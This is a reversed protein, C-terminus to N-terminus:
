FWDLLPGVAATSFVATGHIRPDRDGIGSPLGPHSTVVTSCDSKIVLTNVNTYKDVRSRDEGVLPQFTTLFSPILPFNTVNMDVEPVAYIYVINQGSRYGTASQFTLQNLVRVLGFIRDDNFKNTARYKSKNQHVNLNIHRHMIHGRATTKGDSDPPRPTDYSLSGKNLFCPDSSIWSLIGDALKGTSGGDTPGEGADNTGPLSGNSPQLQSRRTESEYRTNSFLSGGYYHDRGYDTMYGSFGNVFAHFWEWAGLAGPGNKANANWKPGCDNDPCQVSTEGRIFSCDVEIGDLVCNSRGGDAGLIGQVNKGGLGEQVLGDPDIGGDPPFPDSDGVNAGGPDLTTWDWPSANSITGQLDGTVPDFNEWVGGIPVSYGVEGIREEAAFVHTKLWTATADYESVAKGGLVTSRLLFTRGGFTSSFNTNVYLHRLVSYDVVHGDGDHKWTNVFDNTLTYGTGEDIIFSSRKQTSGIERGAADFNYRGVEFPPYGAQENRSLVNGEADYSWTTVRNNTDYELYTEGGRSWYSSNASTQNGWQDYTYNHRYPGDPTGGSTDNVFERAEVGSYASQLRNAVDYQYARDKIPNGNQALKIMGDPHYQYSANVYWYEDPTNLFGILSYSKVLGRNNYDFNVTTNGQSRSKLQGGARYQMQSAFQTQTQQYGVADVATVRGRRDLTETFSSNAREDTVKKLVGGLNYEYSLRFTGANPLGSFTREEWDMRSLQDYHYNVAGSGDSMSTRNAAADYALAVSTTPAVNAGSPVSSADYAVATVLHRANYTYNTVVGRADVRSQITDDSNYNWTTHDSSASNNPDVKQNPTHRTKLRGFGDYTITTDRSTAGPTTGAFERVLTVQNRANYTTTTTAYVTGGTGNPGPGDWNLLESKIIRGLVDSYVRQQRKKTDAGVKTGEDTLTVVEGGACGCGTYAATVTTGDQNTTVLPRGKWDYTQESYIWGAVEDDGATNWQFPTGSATTETPNSSKFVRGMIDYVFKQGSYRNGTSGPHDIATAIVRGAGDTISFSPSEGLGEQITTYTEMKLQSPVYVFRTYAGNVVNTVQQLRGISDYTFTQEPGPESITLNPKPTQKHTVAGFDFNYKATSSNNDPDTITTPYALTTRSNGDSFSDAYSILVEHNAADKVSVVAGARNYKSTTTTSESKSVNHRKVMSLNARGSVYNPNAHQIPTDTGQISVNEDYFFEVRSMLTGFETGDYLLRESPLGLIRLDTYSANTNYNTRTTRLVTTANAAYELFDRPLWCNTGNTFTQQQYIIETRARNGSPDYINTESVRPNLPYSVSTNDQTWSTEVKRQWSGGSLTEVLAPLGRSWGSQTGATGVYYIKNVTGDPLTVDSRKGSVSQSEGPMTWTDNVPGSFSTVAEENTAITGDTDGNWYKVWDSRQTFRPCDAQASSTQLPSGPLNYARYNLVHNANDSAIYAVKWVQGWSTYSFDFHSGDALTVKALTKISTNNAPGYVTLNPFNTQITTDGYTFEAWSHNTPTPQHQNWTQSISTLLGLADYNFNIQRGLTDIVKALRGAVYQITIFNGNRDKIETCQFQNGVLLYSLQTGDTTRLTLDGTDLLLHSSDAAEFLMSSGVQRLETRSGDPGILLYGYKGTEGNYHLQQIVPFGLRFGPGPFGRDDDFSISSTTNRTWVLSNYSLSLGLDMGARGPLSVLPFTWNFNQSLPNEGGGGTANLPDLRAIPQCSSEQPGYAEVETIRSYGDVSASTLVRIKSTIVPSFTFKRWIKNNGSVSAGSIAVWNSGNWYEVQYGTLGWLTFTMSETPEASNAYNDQLTFVDVEDIAKVSGFNIELWDPFPPGSDNWGGGNTWNTSKRDGNNAGGPGYGANYSNSATAVAGLSSLALNYRPAPSPGTWAEVETLRSYNDASANSLVRIKTTTIAAFTFKKWVKNNASVSGGTITVWASGNWYQVEYGTLGFLSFTASETPEVPASYNDQSTVVDIETITKSGNFQVELWAPFGASATSWYGNQSVFLGKRDGNIAGSAAFGSYSSSATATAGNSALAVNTSESCTFASASGVFFFSLVLASLKPLCNSARM